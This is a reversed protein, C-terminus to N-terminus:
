KKNDNSLKVFIYGILSAVLPSYPVGTIDYIGLIGTFFDVFAFIYCLSGILGCCGIGNEDNSSNTEGDM